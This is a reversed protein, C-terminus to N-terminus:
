LVCYVCHVYCVGVGAVCVVHLLCHIYMVWIVCVPSFVVHMYWVYMMCVDYM